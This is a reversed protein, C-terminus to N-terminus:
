NRRRLLFAGLGLVGLALVSPEPVAVTFTQAGGFAPAGATKAPVLDNGGLSVTGISNIGYLTAAAFGQNNPDYYVGISFAYDQGQALGQLAWDGGSTVYGTTGNFSAVVPEVAGSGGVKVGMLPTMSGTQLLQVKWDPSKIATGDSLLVKLNNASGLYTKFTILGGTSTAQAMVGVAAFVSAMALLIKKM